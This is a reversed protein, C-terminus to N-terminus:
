NAQTTQPSGAAQIPQGPRLRENGRVVVQEGESLGDLVEFRDGMAVGISIPRPQATGDANVFVTWGGRGQVLADKPVSLVDRPAAVPVSLTISQGVAIPRGNEPFSAMFRVPRTRTASFETPLVARVTLIVDIGDETQSTVTLDPTLAAIYQSPVNAEIELASTDLLRAVSSGLQIYQGPDAEVSLVTGPFPAVVSARDLNYQAQALAAQANLLRADAEALQGRSEALDGQADDFRGESFASTGRLAEVRDFGSTTRQLRANAVQIGAQAEALAARAQDREIQLIDDDLQVLVDGQAVTDGTLVNVQDVLGSVRAAIASDRSAVVEGFVPVTESLERVEITEVGVTSPGGQALAVVPLFAILALSGLKSIAQRHQM